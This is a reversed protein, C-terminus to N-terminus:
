RILTVTGKAIKEQEGQLQYTCIWVFVAPDQDIGSVKGDWGKGPDNSMFVIQGWRNYVRFEFHKVVGFLRARFLDNRSDQNPTFANPVYLGVLCEKSFVVMTDKGTCNNNDTVQLWYIGAKSVEISSTTSGDSWLYKSFGTSPRVQLSQYNCITSDGPLFKSPLPYIVTVITTDSGVCNNNDTVQVYYKGMGQVLFNRNTSGDQWLYTSYSGADLQRMSGSCLGPNKDLSVLPNTHVTVVRLTDFSHCGKNTTADIVYNGPKDVSIQQTSEGTSWFYSSFSTGADLLVKQGQCFSTDSGLYITPSTYVHVNVTDYIFCGEANQAALYYVTDIQPNVIVTQQSQSDINYAPSWSYQVFGNSASLRITDNNCKSRDVLPTFVIPQPSSVIITDRFFDACADTTRVWYTGPATVLFTSDTSNDQWQYSSFGKKANLLITGSPCLTTDKGLNLIPVANNVNVQLSDWYIKCGADLKMKIWPSAARKFQLTMSTDTIKTIRILSTDVFCQPIVTCEATKRISFDYSTNLQCVTSPGTLKLLDCQPKSSCVVGSIAQGDIDTEYRLPLSIFEFTKAEETFSLATPNPDVTMLTPSGSTFGCTGLKGNPEYKKIFPDYYQSYGWDGGIYISGNDGVGMGAPYGFFSPDYENYFEINLATDTKLLVDKYSTGNYYNYSVYLKDGKLTSARPISSNPISKLLIPKGLTDFIGVLFNSTSTKGAYIIRDNDFSLLPEAVGGDSGVDYRYGNLVAGTAKDLRMTFSRPNGEGLVILSSPTSTISSIILTSLDFAFMGQWLLNGNADLKAVLVGAPENFGLRVGAFYYNGEVDRHLTLLTGNNSFNFGAWSKYTKSWIPQLDDRMLTFTYTPLGNVTTYSQMLFSSDTMKQIKFGAPGNNLWVSIGKMFNGKEDFLKLGNTETNLTGTIRDLRRTNVLHVNNRMLFYQSFADSYSNSRLLKSYSALCTDEDPSSPCFTQRCDFLPTLSQGSINPVASAATTSLINATGPIPYLAQQLDETFGTTLDTYGCGPLIGASDPKMLLIEGLDSKNLGFLYGGDFSRSISKIASGVPVNYERVHETTTQYYAFQKIFILKGSSPLSIGMADGANDVAGPVSFDISEPLVYRHMFEIKSSSVINDRFIEFQNAANKRVGLLKVGAEYQSSALGMTEWTGNEVTYSFNILGTNENLENLVINKKGGVVCNAILALPSWTYDSFGVLDVLGPLDVRSSWKVSLDDKLLVGLVSNTFQAGISYRLPPDFDIIDATLKQPTEALPIKRINNVSLDTNLLAALITNTGNDITGAIFVTGNSLAKADWITTPQNDVRFTQQNLISGSNDMLILLGEHHNDPFIINGSLLFNTNILTQIKKLEIKEGAPAPIHMFFTTNSCPPSTPTSLTRSSNKAAKFSSPRTASVVRGLIGQQMAHPLIVTDTPAINIINNGTATSFIM